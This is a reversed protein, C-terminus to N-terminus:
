QGREDNSGEESSMGVHGQVGVRTRSLQQDGVDWVTVSAKQAGLEGWAYKEMWYRFRRREGNAVEVRDIQSNSDSM